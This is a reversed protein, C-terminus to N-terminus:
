EDIDVFALEDEDEDFADLGASIGVAALPEGHEGHTAALPFRSRFQKTADVGVDVGVDVSSLGYRDLTDSPIHVGARAAVLLFSMAERLKDADRATDVLETFVHHALVVVEHHGDNLVEMAGSRDRVQGLLPGLSARLERHGVQPLASSSARDWARIAPLGDTSASRSRPM